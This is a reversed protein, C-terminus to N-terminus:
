RTLFARRAGGDCSVQGLQCAFEQTGGSVRVATPVVLLFNDNNDGDSARYASPNNACPGSMNDLEASGWHYGCITMAALRYIPYVVNGGGSPNYLAAPDCPTPDGCFVPFILTAQNNVFQNWATLVPTGGINGTNTELCSPSPSTCASSLFSSLQSPTAPSPQNSIISLPVDCGYLTDDGLHGSDSEGPCRTTWWNGGIEATPCAAQTDSPDPLQLRVVTASPVVAPLQPSCLAYPRGPASPSVGVTATASRSTVYDSSQGFIPGLLAPTKGTSSYSVDLTGQANCNVTITSGSSSARGDNDSRLKDAAAQATTRATTNAAITACDGPVAAFVGAAALAAADSSLQLQRTSVYSMGFDMTFAGIGVLVVSLIAVTVAVAGRESRGRRLMM